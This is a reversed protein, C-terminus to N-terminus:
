NLKKLTIAFSKEIEDLNDRERKEQELKVLLYDLEPAIWLTTSRRDGSERTRELKLAKIKGIGTDVMETATVIFQHEKIIGRDAVIVSFQTKGAMLHCRVAIHESLKDTLEGEWTLVTEQTKNQFTAERKTWDFHISRSRDKGFGDRSYHYRTPRLACPASSNQALKFESHETMSTFLSKAEMSFEYTGNENTLKWVAKGKFPVGKARAIYHAEFTSPTSTFTPKEAVLPSSTDSALSVPSSLFLIGLLCTTLLERLNTTNM